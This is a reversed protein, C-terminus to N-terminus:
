LLADIGSGARKGESITEIATDSKKMDNERRNKM